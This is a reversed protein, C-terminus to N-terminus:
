LAVLRFWCALLTCTAADGASAVLFLEFPAGELVGGKGACVSGLGGLARWRQRRSGWGLVVKVPLGMEGYVYRLVVLCQM